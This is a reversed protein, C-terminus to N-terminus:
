RIAVAQIMADLVVPHCTYEESRNPTEIEVLFESVGIWFKRIRSFEPGFQIGAEAISAYVDGISGLESLETKLLELNAPAKTSCSDLRRFRGKAQRKWDSEVAENDELQSHIQVEFEEGAALETIVTHLTVSSELGLPAEISLNDVTLPRDRTDRFIETASSLLIELYAAAPIVVKGGVKHDRLYALSPDNINIKNYFIKEQIRFNLPHGMLPHTRPSAIRFGANGGDGGNEEYWFSTRQFPYFPLAVHQRRSGHWNGWNIECGAVYLKALSTTLTASNEESKRMSPCFVFDMKPNPLEIMALASLVPQPGIEIFVDCNQASITKLAASFHVTHRLHDQWYKAGFDESKMEMAKTASIFTTGEIAKQIEISGAIVGFEELCPDMARSHFAHSTPIRQFRHNQLECLNEFETVADAEGSVVVEASSNIAAIDICKGTNKLIMERVVQESAKVALMAGTPLQSVLLSRATVLKLADEFKLVGAAVAAGFEGVSHGIVVSPFIGFAKWMGILAVQICFIAPQCYLTNELLGDEGWIVDLLPVGLIRKFSENCSDLALAFCPVSEYLNRAMGQYQSGQGTFLFAIKRSTAKGKQFNQHELKSAFDTMSTATLAIRHPFSAREVSMGYSVDAADLDPHIKCFDLYKLRYAELAAESKASITLLQPQQEDPDLTSMRMRGPPEQILAHVNTGSMSFSSMGAIRDKGEWQTLVTPIIAPISELNIKPNLIKLHLNPPIKKNQICLIV